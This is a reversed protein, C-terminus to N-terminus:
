SNMIHVVGYQRIFEAFEKPARKLFEHYAKSHLEQHKSQNMVALNEPSNNGRNTDIHHVKEDPKLHRNLAFEAVMHHLPIHGAKNCNPHTPEYIYTYGYSHAKRKRFRRRNIRKAIRVITTPSVNTLGAIKEYSLETTKLLNEIKETDEKSLRTKRFETGYKRATEENIGLKKAISKFLMGSKTLKIIEDIISQPTKRMKRQGKSSTRNGGGCLM